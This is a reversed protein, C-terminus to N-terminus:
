MQQAPAEMCHCHRWHALTLSPKASGYPRQGCQLPSSASRSPPAALLSSAREMWATRM